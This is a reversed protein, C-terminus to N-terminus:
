LKYGGCRELAKGFRSIFGNRYMFGPDQGKSLAISAEREWGDEPLQNWICRCLNEIQTKSPRSNEGLTFEPLPEVCKVTVPTAHATSVAIWLFSILLSAKKVM